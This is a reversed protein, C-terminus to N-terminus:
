IPRIIRTESRTAFVISLHTQDYNLPEPGTSEKALQLASCLTRNTPDSTALAFRSDPSSRLELAEAGLPKNTDSIEGLRTRGYKVMSSLAGHSTAAVAFQIAQCRM